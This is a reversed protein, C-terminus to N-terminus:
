TCVRCAPNHLLLRCPGLPVDRLRLTPAFARGPSQARAEEDKVALLLLLDTARLAMPAPWAGAAGFHQFLLELQAPGLQPALEGLLACVNVQVAEHTDAQARASAKAMACAGASSQQVAAGGLRWSLM